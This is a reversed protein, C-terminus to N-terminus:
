SLGTHVGLLQENVRNSNLEPVPRMDPILEVSALLQRERRARDCLPAQWLGRCFQTSAQIEGEFREQNPISTSDDPPQLEFTRVLM